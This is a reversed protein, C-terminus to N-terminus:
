GPASAAGGGEQDRGLSPVGPQRGRWVGAGPARDRHGRRRDRVHGAGGQLGGRSEHTRLLRLAARVGSRGPGAGEDGGAGRLRAVRAQGEQGEEASGGPAGRAASQGRHVGERVRPGESQPLHVRPARVAGPELAPDLAHHDLGGPQRRGRGGGRPLVGGRRPRGGRQLEARGRLEVAADHVVHLVADGQVGPLDPGERPAAQLGVVGVGHLHPGPDQLREPLRDLPGHAGCDEGM